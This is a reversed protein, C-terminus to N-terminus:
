NQNTTTLLYSDDCPFLKWDRTTARNDDFLEHPQEAYSLKLSDQTGRLFVISPRRWHSGQHKNTQRGTMDDAKKRVDRPGNVILGCMDRTM